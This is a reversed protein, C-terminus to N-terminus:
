SSSSMSRPSVDFTVTAPLPAREKTSEIRITALVQGTTVTFTKIYRAIDEVDPGAPRPAASMGLITSAPSGAQVAPALGQPDYKLISTATDLEYMGWVDNDTEQTQTGGTIVGPDRRIYFRGDRVVMDTAPLSQRIIHEMAFGVESQLMAMETEQLLFRMATGYLGAFATGVLGVLAAAMVLELLTMGAIQSRRKTKM